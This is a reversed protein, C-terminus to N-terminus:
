DGDPEPEPMSDVLLIGAWCRRCVPVSRWTGQDDQEMRTRRLDRYRKGCEACKM